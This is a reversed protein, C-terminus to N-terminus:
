VAATSAPSTRPSRAYYTNGPDPSDWDDSDALKLTGGKKDSKNVVENM